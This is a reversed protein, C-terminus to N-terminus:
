RLRIWHRSIRRARSGGVIRRSRAQFARHSLLELVTFVPVEKGAANLAIDACGGDHLMLWTGMAFGRPATPINLIRAGEGSVDGRGSWRM